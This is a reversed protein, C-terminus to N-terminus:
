NQKILGSGVIAHTMGVAIADITDDLIKQSGLNTQLLVMKQMAKKDASGNGTVTLKIQQPNYQHILIKNQLLITMLIGRVESIKMATTKNKSFFVTELAAEGPSFKAILEELDTILEQYRDLISSKKDTQICGCAELVFKQGSKKGVAWGLRDFGPDFSIIRTTSM